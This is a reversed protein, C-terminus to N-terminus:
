KIVIFGSVKASGFNLIIKKNELDTKIVSKDAQTFHLSDLDDFHVDIIYDGHTIPLSSREGLPVTVSAATQGVETHLNEAEIIVWRLLDMSFTVYYDESEHKYANHLAYATSWVGGSIAYVGVTNYRGGYRMTADDTLDIYSETMKEHTDLVYCDVIPTHNPDKFDFSVRSENVFTETVSKGLDNDAKLTELDTTLKPTNYGPLPKLVTQDLEADHESVVVGQDQTFYVHGEPSDAHEEEPLSFTNISSIVAWDYNAGTLLRTVTSMGNSATAFGTASGLADKTIQFVMTQPEASTPGSSGKNIVNYKAYEAVTTKDHRGIVISNNPMADIIRQTNGRYDKSIPTWDLEDVHFVAQDAGSSEAILQKIHGLNTAKHDEGNAAPTRVNSISHGHMNLANNINVSANTGFTVDKDFSVKEHFQVDQGKFHTHSEGIVFKDADGNDKFHYNKAQFDIGSDVFTVSEANDGDARSRLKGIHNISLARAANAGIGKVNNLNHNNLDANGHFKVGKKFHIGADKEVTMLDADTDDVMRLKKSHILTEGANFSISDLATSMDSRLRKLNNIQMTRANRANVNGVHQLNQDNVDVDSEFLTVILKQAEGWTVLDGDRRNGVERMVGTIFECNAFSVYNNYIGVPIDSGIALLLNSTGQVKEAHVTGFTPDDGNKVADATATNVQGVTAAHDDETGEAVNVIQGNTGGHGMDLSNLTADDGHQIGTGGTSGEVLKQAEGWTVLDGPNRLSEARMKGTIFECNAFSVYNPYVGIPTQEGVKINLTLETEILGTELLGATVIEATVNELTANGGKKVCDALEATHDDVVSSLGEFAPGLVDLEDRNAKSRPKVEAMDGQLEIVNAENEGALGEVADIQPILTDNMIARNADILTKNKTAKNEVLDMRHSLAYVGQTNSNVKNNNEVVYDDFEERIQDATSQAGKVQLKLEKVTAETDFVIPYIENIHRKNKSIRRRGNLQAATLAAIASTNVAAEAQAGNATKRVDKIDKTNQDATSKASNATSKASDATSKASNATSKASDATSKASEATSKATNATSQAANALEKAEEASLEITKEINGDADYCELKNEASRLVAVNKLYLQPFDVPPDIIFGRDISGASIWPTALTNIYTDLVLVPM